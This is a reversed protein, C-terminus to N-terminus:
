PRSFIYDAAYPQAALAGEAPCPGDKTGGETAIRQVTTVDKLSGDGKRESVALKLWPVDAVSLGPAKAVVKGVVLSGDAMEWTPGAYHRGVTKGGSMLSAVPERFTWALHGGADARCDYIQAGVAHVTLSSKGTPAAIADRSEDALAAGCQAALAVLVATSVTRIM